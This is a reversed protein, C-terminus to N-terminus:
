IARPRVGSCQRGHDSVNWRPRNKRSQATRLFLIGKAVITWRPRRRLPQRRKNQSVCQSFYNRPKTAM